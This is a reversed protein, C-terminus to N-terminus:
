NVVKGNDTGKRRMYTDFPDEEKPQEIQLRSGSSPTLGFETLYSKMIKLADNSISVAPNRKLKSSIENGDKDFITEEILIGRKSVEEEAEHWRAYAFCYAALAKGHIETLMGLRLLVPVIANWEKQALEPLDPPMDPAKTELRPEKENLPRRGPNGRLKKIATPLPRRGSGKVGMKNEDREAKTLGDLINATSTLLKVSARRTWFRIKQKAVTDCIAARRDGTSANKSFLYAGVKGKKGGGDVKRLELRADSDELRSLTQV